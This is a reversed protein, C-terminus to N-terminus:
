VAENILKWQEQDIPINEILKWKPDKYQNLSKVWTMTVELCQSGDVRLPMRQIWRIDAENIRAVLDIIYMFRVKTAIQEFYQELFPLSKGGTLIVTMYHGSSNAFLNGVHLEVLFRGINQHTTELYDLRLTFVNGLKPDPHGTLLYDSSIKYRSSIAIVTEITPKQAGFEIQSLNNRSIGISEAFASQSLNLSLRLTRIRLCIDAM